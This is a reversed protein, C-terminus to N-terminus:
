EATVQKFIEKLRKMAEGASKTRISLQRVITEGHIYPLTYGTIPNEPKTAQRGVRVVQWQDSEKAKYVWIRDDKTILERRFDLWM